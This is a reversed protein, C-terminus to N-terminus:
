LSSNRQNQNYHLWGDFGYELELLNHNPFPFKGYQLIQVIM